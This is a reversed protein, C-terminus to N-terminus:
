ARGAAVLGHRGAGRRRRRVARHGRRHSAAGSSGVGAAPALTTGVHTDGGAAVRRRGPAAAPRPGWGDTLGRGAPRPSGLVGVVLVVLVALRLEVFGEITHRTVEQGDGHWAVLMALLGLVGLTVVVRWGPERWAGTVAAAAVGAVTMLVLWWWAPWLVPTVPSDVRDTAAYFLLNGHAFNYALEPRALPATVVYAPHTLLWLLYTLQGRTSVWHELAAFRPDGPAIVVVNASTPDPPTTTAALQDIARGQPMGHAAFWAVRSPFPFVRVELVDVLNQHTRGTHAADWGTLGAVVLLGLALAGVRRTHHRHRMWGVLAVAAVGAGLLGVTWVQADRAAAFAAAAAIVALVRPWTTRRATWIVAAVLAAVCSISLSESLVSRNWLTVPTVTAFALVLWTAATRRWGEPVLRGVTCALFGWAAVAVLAQVTVFATGSGTVKLVLPVLPPRQGAWFGTSWLPHTSVTVYSASDTWILPTGAVAQWIVFAAFGCWGAVSVGRWTM